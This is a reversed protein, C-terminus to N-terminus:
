VSCVRMCVFVFMCVCDMTQPLLRAEEPYGICFLVYICSHVKPHVDPMYFITGDVPPQVKILKHEQAAGSQVPCAVTVHELCVHAWAGSWKIEAM